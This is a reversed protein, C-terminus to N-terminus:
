VVELAEGLARPQRPQAVVHQLHAQGHRPQGSLLFPRGVQQSRPRPRIRLWAVLAHAHFGESQGGRGVLVPRGRSGPLRSQGIHQHPGRQSAPEFVDQAAPALGRRQKGAQEGAPEPFGARRQHVAEPVAHARELVVLERLGPVQEDLAQGPVGKLRREVLVSSRVPKLHGHHAPARHVAGQIRRRRQGRVQQVRQAVEIERAPGRGASGGRRARLRDARPQGRLQVFGDQM